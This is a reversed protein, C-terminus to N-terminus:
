LIAAIHEMAQDWHAEMPGLFAQFDFPKKSRVARATKLLLVQATGSIEDCARAAACVSERWAADMTDMTDLLWKLFYAAYSFSAGCQRLTAFADKHFDALSHEALSQMYQQFYDHYSRFPNLAPRRGFHTRLLDLALVVLEEDTRRQLRDLKVFEVYPPLVLADSDEDLRFIKKFDADRVTYFGNNHFYDMEGAELDIREVGVTTKEHEYHYSTAGVDPLYFADLEVLVLRDRVTQAHIHRALDGWIQLEQVDIGYLLFLDHLPLKFFTWQDGEFDATLTFAFSAVPNLRLSHLLEIWLDVYCNSQPWLTEGTHLWHSQYNEVSITTLIKHM